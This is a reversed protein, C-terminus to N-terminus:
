VATNEEWVISFVYGEAQATLVACGLIQPTLAAETAVPINQLGYSLGRGTYKAYAEKRTWVESFRVPDKGIYRYEAPTCVRRAVRDRYDGIKEIDAGVPATHVACLLRDKSHSYNFFLNGGVWYPKGASDRDICFREPPQGVAASLMRRALQEGTGFSRPQIEYQM